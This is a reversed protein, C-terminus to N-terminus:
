SVARYICAPFDVDSVQVYLTPKLFNNIQM